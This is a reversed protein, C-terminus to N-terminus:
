RPIDLAIYARRRFEQLDQTQRNIEEVLRRQAFMQWFFRIYPSMEKYKDVHETVQKLLRQAQELHTQLFDENPDGPAIMEAIEAVEQGEIVLDQLAIKVPSWGGIDVM